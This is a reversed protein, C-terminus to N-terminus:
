YRGKLAILSRLTKIATGVPKLHSVKDEHHWTVPVEAFVLRNKKLLCFVELDFTWDRMQVHQYISKAVSTEYAKFGCNFHV